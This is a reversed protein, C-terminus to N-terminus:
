GPARARRPRPSRSTTWSGTCSRSGRGRQDTRSPARWEGEDEVIVVLRGDDQRARVILEGSGRPYAHEVVNAAAEHVALAVEAGVEPAAGQGDLWTGLAQRISQLEEAQAPIQMEFDDPAGDPRQAM